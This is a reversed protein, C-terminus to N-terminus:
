AFANEFGQIITPINLHVYLGGICVCEGVCVFNVPVLRPVSNYCKSVM